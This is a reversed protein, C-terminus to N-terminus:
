GLDPHDIATELNVHCDAINQIPLIDKDKDNQTILIFKKSQKHKIDSILSEVAADNNELFTMDIPFYIVYDLDKGLDEFYPYEIFRLLKDNKNNSYIGDVTLKEPLIPPDYADNILSSAQEIDPTAIVGKKFKNICVNLVTRLKSDDDLGTVLLKQHNSELFNTIEEEFKRLVKMGHIGAWKPYGIIEDDVIKLTEEPIEAVPYRLVINQRPNYIGLYKISEFEPQNTRLGMRWYVLLQLTNNKTVYGRLVKLDWLTDETLFDGDGSAITKTYAGEFTFGDLTIPGYIDFFNLTRKIMTRVNEVTNEDPKIQNVPQYGFGGNRYVVDFGVLKIASIISEDDLGQIKKKLNNATRTKNIIKAGLFSIKFSEEVSSGLLFRSLYDVALGILNGHVNENEHLSEMGDGLSTETFDVRKLYGGWPQDVNKIRQTVSMQLGYKKILEDIIKSQIDPKKEKNEM